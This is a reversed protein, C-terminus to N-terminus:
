GMHFRELQKCDLLGTHVRTASQVSPTGLLFSPRQRSRAIWLRQHSDGIKQAMARTQKPTALSILEVRDRVASSCTRLESIMQDCVRCNEDLYILIREKGLREVVSSKQGTFFDVIPLAEVFSPKDLEGKSVASSSARAFVTPLAFMALSLCLMTLPKFSFHRKGSPALMVRQLASFVPQVSRTLIVVQCGWGIRQRIGRWRAM